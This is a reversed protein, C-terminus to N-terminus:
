SLMDLKLLLQRITLMLTCSLLYNCCILSGKTSNLHSLIVIQNLFRALQQKEAIVILLTIVNVTQIKEPEM